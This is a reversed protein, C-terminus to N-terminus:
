ENAIQEITATTQHSRAMSQKWNPEYLNVNRMARNNMRRAHRQGHHKEWAEYDADCEALLEEDTMSKTRLLDDWIVTLKYRSVTDHEPCWELERRLNREMLWMAAKVNELYKQQSQTEMWARVNPVYKQPELKRDRRTRHKLRKVVEDGILIRKDIVHTYRNRNLCCCHCRSRTHTYYGSYRHDTITSSTSTTTTATPMYPGQAPRLRRDSLSEQNDSDSTATTPNHPYQHTVPRHGQFVKNIETASPEQSLDYTEQAWTALAAPTLTNIRDTYELLIHHAKNNNKKKNKRQRRRLQDKIRDVHQQQRICM